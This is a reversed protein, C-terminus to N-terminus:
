RRACEATTRGASFTPTPSEARALALFGFLIAAAGCTMLTLRPLHVAAAARLHFERADREPRSLYRRDTLSPSCYLHPEGISVEGLAFFNSSSPLTPLMTDEPSQIVRSRSRSIHTAPGSM